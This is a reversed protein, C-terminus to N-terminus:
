LYRLNIETFVNKGNYSAIQYVNGWPSFQNEIETYWLGCTKQISVIKNYITFRYLLGLLVLQNNFLFNNSAKAQGLASQGRVWKRGTKDSLLRVEQIMAQPHIPPLSPPCKM